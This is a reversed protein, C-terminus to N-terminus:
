SQRKNRFLYQQYCFLLFFFTMVGFIIYALKKRKIYYGLAFVLAISILPISIAEVMNTLYNPNEFPVASNAGFYGGGNTGIQKIAIMGAAPGRSVQIHIARCHQLLIKVQLAQQHAM